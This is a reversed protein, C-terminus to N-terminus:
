STEFILRKFQYVRPSYLKKYWVIVRNKVLLIHSENKQEFVSGTFIKQNNGVTMDQVVDVSSVDFGSLNAEHPFGYVLDPFQSLM